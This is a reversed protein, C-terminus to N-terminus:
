RTLLVTVVLTLLTTATSAVIAPNRAFWSKEPVFLEDGSQILSDELRTLRSLDTRIREGERILQVDDLKGVPTVGGALGVADAVTMTPDVEYLGPERVAGLVRLRRLVIVEISPNRLYKGYEEVLDSRLTEHTQGAVDRPGLKPLVVRGDQDVYFDGSLDPERWIRLRVVDGPQIASPVVRRAQAEGDSQAGAPAADSAAGVLALALALSSSRFSSNM